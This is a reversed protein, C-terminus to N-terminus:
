EHELPVKKKKGGLEGRTKMGFPLYVFWSPFFIYGKKKTTLRRRKKKENKEKKGNKGMGENAAAEEVRSFNSTLTMSKVKRIRLHAALYSAVKKAQGGNGM